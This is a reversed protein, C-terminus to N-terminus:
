IALLQKSEVYFMEPLIVLFQQKTYLSKLNYFFTRYIEKPSLM